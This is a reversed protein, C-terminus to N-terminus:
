SERHEVCESLRFETVIVRDISHFPIAVLSGTADVYACTDNGVCMEGVTRVTYTKGDYTRVTFSSFPVAQLLSTLDQKM